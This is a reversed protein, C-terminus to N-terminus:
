EGKQEKIQKIQKIKKLLEEDIKMNEEVVKIGESTLFFTDAREDKAGKEVLGLSIFMKMSQRIKPVSLNTETAIRQIKFSCLKSFCTNQYLSGIIRYENRTFDM